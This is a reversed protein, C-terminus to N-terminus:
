GKWSGSAIENNPEDRKEKREFASRLVRLDSRKTGKDKLIRVIIDNPGILYNM